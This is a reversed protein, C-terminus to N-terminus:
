RQETAIQRTLRDIQGDLSGDYVKSGMRVRFGALLDPNDVFEARVNAGVVDGMVDLIRRRSEPGVEGAIEIRARARGLSRDVLDRYVRAIDPMHELRFHQQVVHLFRRTPQGVALHDLIEELISTKTELSVRPTVMARQLDPVEAVAAAISDLEDGVADARAPDDTGVVEFLAKAYPAARFRGM